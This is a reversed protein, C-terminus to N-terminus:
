TMTSVRIDQVIESRGESEGPRRFQEAFPLRRNAATILNGIGCTRRAGAGTTERGVGACQASSWATRERGIGVRLGANVQVEGAQARVDRYRGAHSRQLTLRRRSRAVLPNRYEIRVVRVRVNLVQRQRNRAANGP